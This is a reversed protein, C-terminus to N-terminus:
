EHEEEISLIANKISAQQAGFLLGTSLYYSDKIALDYIAGLKLRLAVGDSSLGTTDLNTHVRSFSLSPAIKIGFQDQALGHTIGAFYLILLLYKKM